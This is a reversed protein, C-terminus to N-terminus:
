RDRFPWAGLIIRMTIGLRTILILSMASVVSGLRRLQEGAGKRIAFSALTGNPIAFYARIMQKAEEFEEESMNTAFSEEAEKAEAHEADDRERAWWVIKHWEQPLAAMWEQIHAKMEDCTGEDELAASMWDGLKVSTRALQEVAPDNRNTLTPSPPTPRFEENVWRVLDSALYKIYDSIETGTIPNEPNWATVEPSPDLAETAKEPQKHLWALADSYQQYLAGNVNLIRATHVSERLVRKAEGAEM